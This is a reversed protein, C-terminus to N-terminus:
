VSEGLVSSRPRAPRRAAETRSGRLLLRVVRHCRRRRGRCWWNRGGRVGRARPDGPDPRASGVPRGARVRWAQRCRDVGRPWAAMQVAGRQHRRRGAAHDAVRHVGCTGRSGSTTSGPQGNWSSRSPRGSAVTWTGNASVCSLAKTRTRVRVAAASGTTSRSCCGHATRRWGIRCSLAIPVTLDGDFTRVSSFGPTAQRCGSRPSRWCRGAHWFIGADAESDRRLYSVAKGHRLEVAHM